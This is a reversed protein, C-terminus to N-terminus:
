ISITGSVTVKAGQMNFTARVTNNELDITADLNDITIKATQYKTSASTVYTGVAALGTGTIRYGKPTITLTANNAVITMYTRPIKVDTYQSITFNATMKTPNIAFSSMPLQHIATTDSWVSTTTTSTSTSITPLTSIVKYATNHSDTATYSWFINQDILDIHGTFYSIGSVAKDNTFTYINAKEESNSATVGDWSFQYTNGALTAELTPNFSLQSKDATLRYVIKQDNISASAATTSDTATTNYVHNLLQVNWTREKTYDLGKYKDNDNCSVISFVLATIAVASIFKKIM